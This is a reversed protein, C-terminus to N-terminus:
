RGEGEKKFDLITMISFYIWFPEHCYGEFFLFEPYVACDIAACVVM